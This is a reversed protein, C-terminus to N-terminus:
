PALQCFGQSRLCPLAQWWPHGPHTVRLHELVQPKTAQKPGQIQGKTVGTRLWFQACNILHRQLEWTRCDLWKNYERALRHELKAEIARSAAEAAEDALKNAEFAWHPLSSDSPAQQHSRIWYLQIRKGQLGWGRDM